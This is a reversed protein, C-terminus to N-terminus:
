PLRYPLHFMGEEKKEFGLPLRAKKGGRRGGIKFVPFIKKPIKWSNWTGGLFVEGREGRGGKQWLSCCLKGRGEFIIREMIKVIREKKVGGTISLFTHLDHRNAM